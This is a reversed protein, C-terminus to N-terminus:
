PAEERCPRCHQYKTDNSDCIFPKNMDLIMLEGNKLQAKCREIDRHAQMWPSDLFFFFLAFCVMIPARYKPYLIILALFAVLLWIQWTWSSM